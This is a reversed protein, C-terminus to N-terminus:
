KRKPPPGLLTDIPLPKELAYGQAFDCGVATLWQLAAQSDIRKAVCHVGMVKCAQAIAVVIAQSLKDKMAINTLKPDIKVARLAGSGLLALSRPDFTFNDLVLFCGLKECVEVFRQVQPKCQVCAFETIEFGIHEAPVESAVLAAAIRDTFKPDELSGISLNISFSAPESDWVLDGHEGLWTLLRQVVFGDLVAGEKGKSSEAIYAPPVEDRAADSRSRALVEYRRTRGNSRLKILEQVHLILDLGSESADAADDFVAAIRAATAKGPAPGPMADSPAPPELVPPAAVPAVVPAAVPPAKAVPAAPKAVPAPAAAKLVPPVPAKPATATAKAAAPAKAAAAPVVQMMGTDAISLVFEESVAPVEATAEEPGEALAPSDVTFELEAMASPALVQNMLSPAKAGAKPAATAKAAPMPASPAHKSKAASAAQAGSGKVAPPASAAPTKAPTRAPAPAEPTLELTLIEDILKPPLSQGTSSAAALAPNLATATVTAAPGAPPTPMAVTAGTESSAPTKNRLFVAIKQLITRVQPTVIREIVGDPMAKMDALIMALGVLDGKPARVALFVALRGDEMGSEYYPLSSDAQLAGIAEMVVSHEDPGLAGESLWLVEAEADCLSVSNLRM